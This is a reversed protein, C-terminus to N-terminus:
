ANTKGKQRHMLAMQAPTLLWDLRACRGFRLRDVSLKCLSGKKISIAADARGTVLVSVLRSLYPEHGVLLVAEPPPDIRRLRNILKKQSAGVVLEDALMVRDQLKLTRAVISATQKARVLPSSLVLGIAVEMLRMARAVNKIVRKGKPTLSRDFDTKVNATELEVAQGHRLLYIEMCWIRVSTARSALLLLNSEPFTCSPNKQSGTVHASRNVTNARTTPRTNFCIM